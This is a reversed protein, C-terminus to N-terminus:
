KFKFLIMGGIMLALGAYKNWLFPIKESGMVGFAEILSAVLLQAILISSVAVAPSSKGIALMVTITILYGLVGGFLYFKNVQSVMKFDGKGLIFLFIVSLIFAAGAVIVNAEYVGIKEGLRTNMVGQISMLTGAIVGFIIGLM